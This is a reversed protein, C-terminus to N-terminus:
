TYASDSRYTKVANYLVAVVVLLGGILTRNSPEESLVLWVWFPGLVMELLMILSVEPASILKPGYTILVMALPYILGGNLLLFLIDTQSASKIEGGLTLSVVLAFFAGLGIAAINNVEPKNNILVLTTAVCFAALLAYLDGILNDSNISGWFVIGIGCVAVLTAGWVRLPLTKGFFFVSLLAAIFPMTSLIVLTNAATTHTVASVFFVNSGGFLLGCFVGYSGLRYVTRLPNQKEMWSTAAFIAVVTFFSRFILLTWQDAEVLRMLLVDPTLILVGLVTMLLGRQHLSVASM